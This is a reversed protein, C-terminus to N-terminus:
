YVTARPRRLAAMAILYVVTYVVAAILATAWYEQNNFIGKFPAIFPTSLTDIASVFGNEERAGMAELLTDLAILSVITVYLVTIINAITGAIPASEVTRTESVAVDDDAYIRRAM